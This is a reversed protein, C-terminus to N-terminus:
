NDMCPVGVYIQMFVLCAHAAEHIKTQYVEWHFMCSILREDSALCQKSSSRSIEVVKTLVYNDDSNRYQEPLTRTNSRTDQSISRTDNSNILANKHKHKRANFFVLYLRKNHLDTFLEMSVILKGYCCMHIQVIYTSKHIFYFMGTWHIQLPLRLTGGMQYFLTEALINRNDAKESM